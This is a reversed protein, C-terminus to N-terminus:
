IFDVLSYMPTIMSFAFFGVVIGVIIMLFPEIIVSMNQTKQEVENEYFNATKLLMKGIEGTEEGVAMMESVFIPYYKEANRFIQSVPIGVQINKEARKLIEKYYSNQVVDEVIQIARLFPVGASLLSALTRTTRATNIEKVLTSILPMNLLFYDNFRKIPKTKAGLMGLFILIILGVLIMSINYQIFESFAIIIRTSRPLAVELEQFTENLTPVIFLMMLIGIAFMLSIIVSPYIMASRIKKKLNYTKEMQDGVAGLAKALNGSEEGSQIMSVVIPSFINKHDNMASSLLKGSKIDKGVANIINKLRMNRTQKELVDISRALPLGAELMSSLNKIIIIKEQERVPTLNPLKKNLYKLSFHSVKKVAVLKLGEDKLDNKLDIEDFAARNGIVIEGKTNLAKYNFDILNTM